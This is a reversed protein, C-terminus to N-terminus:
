TFLWGVGKEFELSIDAAPASHTLAGVSVYDIGSAALRRVRDVTLNGSVELRARGAVRSAARRVADDDMNDLLVVDAGAAVAADVDELTEAEVEIALPTGTARVRRVAEALGGAVAIHNDKILVGDFLGFRHNVGGGCAVAYKALARMGPVTKRTDLVEVRTGAAEVFERTRTAIGSLHQLFNLATREGTLIGAAPGAIDALRDGARCVDGDARVAVFEIAPDVAAFVARAVDLGALVCEGKALIAAAARADDPVIARTTVDGAGVDEALAERVLRRYAAPDLDPM